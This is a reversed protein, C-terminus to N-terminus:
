RFCIQSFDHPPRGNTRKGSRLVTSGGASFHSINYSVFFWNIRRSFRLCLVNGMKGSTIEVSCELLKECHGFFCPIQVKLGVYFLDSEMTCLDLLSFTRYFKASFGFKLTEPRPFQFFSSNPTSFINKKANKWCFFHFIPIFSTPNWRVSTESPWTFARSRPFLKPGIKALFELFVPPFDLNKRREEEEGGREERRRGM